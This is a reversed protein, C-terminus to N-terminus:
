PGVVVWRRTRASELVADCVAAARAGDAFTPLGDPVQGAVAAYTDAVFSDFCDQYGQGHGAPLRSYRAACPHLTEPDRTVMESGRRRGVWLLEPQEQDFSLTADSGSVELLLRNKRGPSVQSVVVSGTAQAATRFLVTAVDETGVERGGQHGSGRVAHVTATDAVLEVIRDGTVFEALDCWHSGIDAFARSAGGTEVDVRWNDDDPRLLWDQLYSGHVVSVVGAEGATVRARAERVVPHFRYVFPVTAVAGTGAALDVLRRATAADTALPKECVVHKGARLAAEALPAHSSNPSCVHVVDVDPSTALELGSAFPVEADLEDAASRAREASSAAAGVVRAGAQRAARSHVRGMFGAGVIGVRLQRGSGARPAPGAPRVSTTPM